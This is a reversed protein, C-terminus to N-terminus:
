PVEGPTRAQRADDLGSVLLIVGLVAAVAAGLWGFGIEIVDAQDLLLVTGLAALAVGAALSVRDIARDNM